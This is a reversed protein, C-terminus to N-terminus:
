IFYNSRGNPNLKARIIIYIYIYIYYIQSLNSLNLGEIQLNSKVIQNVLDKIQESNIRMGEFSLVRKGTQEFILNIRTNTINIEKIAPYYNKIRSRLTENSTLQYGGLKLARIELLEHNTLYKFLEYHMNESIRPFIRKTLYNQQKLQFLRSNSNPQNLDSKSNEEM